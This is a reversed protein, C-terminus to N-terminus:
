STHTITAQKKRQRQRDQEQRFLIQGPSKHQKRKGTITAVAISGVTLIGELAQSDLFGNQESTWRLISNLTHYNRSISCQQYAHICDCLKRKFRFLTLTHDTLTTHHGPVLHFMFYYSKTSVSERNHFSFILSQACAHSTPTVAASVKAVM